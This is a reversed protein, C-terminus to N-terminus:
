STKDGFIEEMPPMPAWEEDLQDFTKRLSEGTASMHIWVGFMDVSEIVGLTGHRSIVHRGTLTDKCERCDVGKWRASKAQPSVPRCSAGIFGQGKSFRGYNEYHIAM